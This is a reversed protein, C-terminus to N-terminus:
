CTHTTYDAIDIHQGCKGCYYTANAQTGESQLEDVFSQMGSMVSKIFDEETEEQPQFKSKLWGIM